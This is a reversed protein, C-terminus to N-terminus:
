TTTNGTSKGQRLKTLASKAEELESLVREYESKEIYDRNIQNRMKLKSQNLKENRRRNQMQNFEKLKNLGEAENKSLLSIIDAYTSLGYEKQLFKLNLYAWKPLFINLRQREEKKISSRKSWTNAMRNVFERGGEFAGIVKFLSIVQSKEAFILPPTFETFRNLEQQRDTLYKQAWLLQAKNGTFWRTNLKPM